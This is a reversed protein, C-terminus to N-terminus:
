EKTESKTEKEESEEVGLVESSDDERAIIKILERACKSCLVGGYPREPRKSSKPMNQLKLPSGNPVGALTVGCNGCVARGPKRKVYHIVNKNGPTVRKVRRFTRSKQKAPLVM